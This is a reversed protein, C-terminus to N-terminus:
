LFSAEFPYLCHLLDKEYHLNAHSAAKYRELLRTHEIGQFIHEHHNGKNTTNGQRELELNSLGIQFFDFPLNKQKTQIM